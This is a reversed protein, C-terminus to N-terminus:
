PTQSRCEDRRTVNGVLKGWKKREIERLPSSKAYAVFFTARFSLIIKEISYEDRMPACEAATREYLIENPGEAIIKQNFLECSKRFDDATRQLIGRISQDEGLPPFVSLTILESWNKVTEGPLVWETIIQNRTRARHGIKWARGDKPLPGVSDGIRLRSMEVPDLRYIIKDDKFLFGRLRKGLFNRKFGRTQHVTVPVLYGALLEGGRIPPAKFWSKRPAWIIPEGAYGVFLDPKLAALIKQKHTTPCRGYELNALEEPTPMVTCGALILLGVMTATVKM